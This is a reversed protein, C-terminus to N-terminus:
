KIKVPIGSVTLYVEDASHAIHQNIWGHVDAFHRASEEMPHLGMGIENGVVILTFDQKIFKDWEKKAEDLTPAVRYENDHYINTLWLTVCDMLVTQGSLLHHSLYRDEELTTWKDSRADQHRQIRDEFDKDWRRATALYIPHDSLSEAMRQAFDSKGSRQGGTIFIIKSM